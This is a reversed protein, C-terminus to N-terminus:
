ARTTNAAARAVAGEFLTRLEGRDNLEGAINHGSLAAYTHIHVGPVRRVRRAHALDRRMDGVHIEIPVVHRRASRRLVRSIFTQRAFAQVEAAGLRSGLLVAAYGGMSGGTFVARRAHDGLLTRLHTAVDDFTDGV